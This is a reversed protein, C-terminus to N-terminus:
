ERDTHVASRQPGPTPDWPSTGKQTQAIEQASWSGPEYVNYRADPNGASLVAM